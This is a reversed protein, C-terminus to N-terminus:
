KEGVVKYGKKEIAETIQKLSLQSADYKVVTSSDVHNAEISVLGALGAVSGQVTMECHDCTMGEVHLITQLTDPAASLVETNSKSKNNCAALVFLAFLVMALQKM